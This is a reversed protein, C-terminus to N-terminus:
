NKHPHHPHAGEPDAGAKKGPLARQDPEGAGGSYIGEAGEYEMHGDRDRREKRLVKEYIEPMDAYFTRGSLYSLPGEVRPFELKWAHLLQGQIHHSKQYARNVKEDGYKPDGLIPHGISALHARIQHSRGTVLLVELLTLGNACCVSRYETEVPKGMESALPDTNGINRSKREAGGDGPKVTVTVRNSRPNKVLYGKLRKTGELRGKVVCRYYKHMSRDRLLLSMTQLGALSKGAVLIGSTNRDLRNCVSPRFRELEEETLSGSELLYSILYEVASVDKPGAKQSLMGAPKNLLLIHEDEYIIDLHTGAQPPLGGRDKQFREVTEEALFLKLEDGERLVENGQMKKGNLTINKKRMMKYLFSKPAEDLYKGLLKDARQGADRATVVIRRM